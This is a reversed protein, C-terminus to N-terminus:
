GTLKWIKQDNETNKLCNASLIMINSIKEKFLFQVKCNWLFFNMLQPSFQCACNQCSFQFPLFFGTFQCDIIIKWTWILNIKFFSVESFSYVQLNPYEFKSVTKEWCPRCFRLCISFFQIRKKCFCNKRWFKSAITAILTLLLPSLFITIPNAM